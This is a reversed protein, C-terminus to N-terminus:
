GGGGGGKGNEGKGGKGKGGSGKGKASATDLHYQSVRVSNRIGLTRVDKNEFSITAAPYLPTLVITRNPSKAIVRM